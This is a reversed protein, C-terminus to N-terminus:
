DNNRVRRRKIALIRAGGVGPLLETVEDFLSAVARDM